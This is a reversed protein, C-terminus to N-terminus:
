YKTVGDTADEVSAGVNVERQWTYGWHIYEGVTRRRKQGAAPPAVRLADNPAHFFPVSIRPTNATSRVRHVTALYRGGSVYSLLRGVNVVLLEGAALPAPFFTGDSAQIELGPEPALLLTFFGHDAHAPLDVQGPPYRWLRLHGIGDAAAGEDWEPGLGGELLLLEVLQDAVQTCRRYYEEIIARAPPRVSEAWRNPGCLIRGDNPSERGIEFAEREGAFEYGRFNVDRSLDLRRKEELEVDFLERAAAVVESGDSDTLGHGTLAVFGVQACAEDLTRAALAPPASLDVVPLVSIGTV